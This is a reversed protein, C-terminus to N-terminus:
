TDGARWDPGAVNVCGVAWLRGCGVAWLGCGVAVASLRGRECLGDEAGVWMWECSM